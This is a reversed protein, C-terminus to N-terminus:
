KGRLHADLRSQPTMRERLNAGYQTEISRIYNGESDYIRFRTQPGYGQQAAYAQLADYLSDADKVEGNSSIGKNIISYEDKGPERVVTVVHGVGGQTDIGVAYAEFGWQKAIHALFPAIGRCVTTPDVKGGGIVIHRVEEYIEQDSITNTRKQFGDMIGETAEHNYTLYVTSSLANLIILKEQYSASEIDKVFGKLSDNDYFSHIYKYNKWDVSISHEDVVYNDNGKDVVIASVKAGSFSVMDLVDCTWKNTGAKSCELIANGGNSKVKFVYTGDSSPPGFEEVVTTDNFLMEYNYIDDLIHLGGLMSNKQKILGDTDSPDLGNGIGVADDRVIPTMTGGVDFRLNNKSDEVSYKLGVMFQYGTYQEAGWIQGIGTANFALLHNLHDGDKIAHQYTLSVHGEGSDRYIDAGIDLLVPGTGM